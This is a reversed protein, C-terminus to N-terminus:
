FVILDLLLVFNNCLQVQFILIWIAFVTMVCLDRCHITPNLGFKAYLGRVICFIVAYCFLWNKFNLVPVAAM